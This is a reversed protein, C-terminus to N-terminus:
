IEGREKGLKSAMDELVNDIEEDTPEPEPIDPQYDPQRVKLGKLTGHERVFTNLQKIIESESMDEDVEYVDDIILFELVPFTYPLIKVEAEKKRLRKMEKIVEDKDSWHSLVIVGGPKDLVQFRVFDHRKKMVQNVLASFDHSNDIERVLKKDRSLLNRTLYGYQQMVGIAREVLDDWYGYPKPGM